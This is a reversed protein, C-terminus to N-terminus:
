GRRAPRIEEGPQAQAELDNRAPEGLPVLSSGAIRGAQDLRQGEAFRALHRITQSTTQHEAGIRHHDM